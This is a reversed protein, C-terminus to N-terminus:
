ASLLSFAALLIMVISCGGHLTPLCAESLAYRFLLGTQRRTYSFSPLAFHIMSALSKKSLFKFLYPKESLGNGKLCFHPDVSCCNVSFHCPRVGPLQEGLPFIFSSSLCQITLGGVGLHNCLQKFEVIQPNM